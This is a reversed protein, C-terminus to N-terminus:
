RALHNAPRHFAASLHRITDKPKGTLADLSANEKPAISRPNSNVQPELLRM